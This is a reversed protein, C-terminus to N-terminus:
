FERISLVEAPAEGITAGQQRGAFLEVAPSRDRVGGAHPEFPAYVNEEHHGVIVRVV